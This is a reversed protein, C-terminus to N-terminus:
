KGTLDVFKGLVNSFEKEKKSQLIIGFNEKLILKRSKKFIKLYLRNTTIWIFM